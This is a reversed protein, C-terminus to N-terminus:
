DLRKGYAVLGYVAAIAGAFSALSWFPYAPMMLLQAVGGISLVVIGTWRALQNRFLVGAGAAVQVAGICIAVWGWTNLSGFVYKADHVFFRANGIAAIGEIVNLAGVLLLLVGAFALWGSGPDEWDVEQPRRTEPTTYASM